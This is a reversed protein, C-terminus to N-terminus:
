PLNLVINTLVSGGNSVAIVVNTLSKVANTSGDVGALQLTPGQVTATATIAAASKTITANTAVGGVPVVAVGGIKMTGSKVNLDDISVNVQDWAMAVGCAMAVVAVMAMLRIKM